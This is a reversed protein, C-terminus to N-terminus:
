EAMEHITMIHRDYFSRNEHRAVMCYFGMVELLLSYFHLYEDIPRGEAQEKRILRTGKQIRVALKQWDGLFTQWDEDEMGDKLKKLIDRVEKKIPERLAEKVLPLHRLPVWEGKTAVENM